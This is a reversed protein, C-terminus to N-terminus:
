IEVPNEINIPIIRNRRCKNMFVDYFVYKTQRRFRKSAFNYTYFSNGNSLFSISLAIANILSLQALYVPERNTNLASIANIISYPTYTCAYIGIELLVMSTLQKDLERRIIPNTRTLLSRANRYALFGFIVAILPFLNGYVISLGYVHYQYFISNTAMCVSPNISSLQNFYIFYLLGHCVSVLTIIIIARRAVRINSYQRWQPRFCTALYQDIVALSLCLLASINCTAVLFGRIRCYLFSISTFNMSFAMSICIFSTAFLLRILNFLTTFM